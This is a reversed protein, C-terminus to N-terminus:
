TRSAFRPPAVGETPEGGLASIKEVLHRADEVEAAAFKGLSWALGQYEFGFMSGATLTHQLASRSQLRLATNLADIQAETDMTERDHRRSHERGTGPMFRGTSTMASLVSLRWSRDTAEGLRM